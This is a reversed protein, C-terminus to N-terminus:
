WQHSRRVIVLVKEFKIFKRGRLAASHPLFDTVASEFHKKAIYMAEEIYISSKM